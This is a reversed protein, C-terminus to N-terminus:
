DPTHGTPSSDVALPKLSRQSVSSRFVSTDGMETDGFGIKPM